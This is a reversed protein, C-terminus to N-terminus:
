MGEMMEMMKNQIFSNVERSVENATEKVHLEVGNKLHISTYDEHKYKRSEIASIDEPNIFTPMNERNTFECLM